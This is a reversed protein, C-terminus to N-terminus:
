WDPSGRRRLRIEGLVDRVHGTDEDVELAEFSELERRRELRVVGRAERRHRVVDGVGLRHPAEHLFRDELSDTIKIDGVGLRRVRPALQGGVPLRLDLRHGAEPRRPPVTTPREPGVGGSGARDPDPQFARGVRDPEPDPQFARGVRGPTLARGRSSLVQARVARPRLVEPNHHWENFRVSFGRNLADQALDAWPTKPHKAIVEKLLREAEAYKKATESQPALPEKAHDVVWTIMLDARPQAKPSPPNKVISAMLARYEYAKVQFAVTQALMLDYHAQWRKEPERDRAM